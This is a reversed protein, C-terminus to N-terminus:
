QGALGLADLLFAWEFATERLHEYRGSPGFHGGSMETRLLLMNDDTKLARLKAVWKAPEWYMVRPDHLGATALIAPYARAQVNDYPSYSLMYEYHERIRPDGWEEYEPEILPITPDLMTNVLDVAPVGAIAARFLEPRMTVVAGILLGGASRGRIALLEPATYGQAILHEACAIFDTFTNRKTLVRGQRYWEEGFDGGGRIQAIACVFGRELLPLWERNFAPEYPAGYAGYGVLLCPRPTGPAADAPRVLVIPVRVGDPATAWLRESVYRAPDYGPVEERKVVSLARAAMDYEVTQPPTVPSSYVLRLKTTAFTPNLPWESLNSWRALSYVPEPFEVTHEAGSALDIVRLRELGGSREYLAMHGAFVEFADISVGPREPVVETWRERAPDAVPAAMVRYGTADENTLIFIQDGRHQVYYNVGVRAPTVLRPPEEPRDLPLLRAAATQASSSQLVLYAGNRSRAISLYLGPDAEEYVLADSSQEQGLTHRHARYARWSSTHTIYFLTRSDGGWEIDDGVGRIPGDVVEGSELDKVFLDYVEGGTTSVAYALRREDPSIRLAGLSFFPQGEALANEDLLVEEAADGDRRRCHIRYQKGAETRAYYLHAGIRVPASEDAEPVRSALEAFLRERLGATHATREEAYRNEAALYDLVEPNERERLWFYDDIRTHGHATVPHPRRAAEPPTVM